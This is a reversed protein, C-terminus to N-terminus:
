MLLFDLLLPHVLFEWGGLHMEITSCVFDWSALKWM